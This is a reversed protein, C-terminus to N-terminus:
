VAVRTEALSVVAPMTQQMIPRSPMRVAVVIGSLGTLVGAAIIAASIGSADIIVGAVIAGFVYGLDRWLRYVGVASGRWAPHAVDGIAALLTPYVLATGLGLLSLGVGWRLETDVFAISVLAVAQLLMGGVILPKRGTRDSVAGTFLQAISWVVPYTAVLFSSQKLSLGSSIFLIPFVGWALGDNLNNVLGAQSASFLGADSWISRKLISGMGPHSASAKTTAELEVHRSTDRVFLSLLLGTLSISMGLYAAAPRLGLRLSLLGTILAAIGLALYGAFENLGMALGRRRPGILDIKMIVTTSWTLGQNIGLLANAAVIWSWSPAVLILFPIPLAILWGAILTSRRAHRDALWGALLNTSAKTLGFAMIFSMAASASSVKFDRSAILPMVTRELGIMAGVFANVIVLLTFQQWNARLGLVPERM